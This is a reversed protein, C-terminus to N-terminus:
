HATTSYLDELNVTTKHAAQRSIALYSILIEEPNSKVTEKYM